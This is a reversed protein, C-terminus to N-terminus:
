PLEKWSVAVVLRGSFPGDRGNPGKHEGAFSEPLGSCMEHTQPPGPEGPAEVLADCKIRKGDPGVEFVALRKSLKIQGPADYVLPKPDGIQLSIETTIRRHKGAGLMGAEERKSGVTLAGCSQGARAAVEGGIACSLLVNDASWENELRISAPQSVEADRGMRWTFRGSYPAAIANGTADRAPSFRARQVLLSCVQQDLEEHGSSHVISCGAPIGSSDIQLQFAVTGEHAQRAAVPPYDDDTVWDGPNTLPRLPQQGKASDQAQVALLAMVLLM